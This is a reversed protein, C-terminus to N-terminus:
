WGFRALQVMLAEAKLNVQYYTPRGLARERLAGLMSKNSASASIVM